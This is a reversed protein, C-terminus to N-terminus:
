GEFRHILVGEQMKRKVKITVISRKRNRWGEKSLLLSGKSKFIDMDAGMM